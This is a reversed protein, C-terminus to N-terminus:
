PDSQGHGKRSGKSLWMLSSKKSSALCGTQSLAGGEEENLEGLRREIVKVAPIEFVADFATISDEEDFSRARRGISLKSRMLSIATVAVATTPYIQGLLNAPNGGPLEWCPQLVTSYVWVPRGLTSCGVTYEAVHPTVSQM